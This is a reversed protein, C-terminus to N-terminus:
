ATTVGEGWVCVVVVLLRRPISVTERRQLKSTADLVFTNVASSSCSSATLAGRQGGARRAATDLCVEGGHQRASSCESRRESVNDRSCSSECALLRVRSLVTPSRPRPGCLGRAGWAAGRAPCPTMSLATRHQRALIGTSAAPEHATSTTILDSEAVRAGGRCQECTVTQAGREGAGGRRQARQTLERRVGRPQRLHRVVHRRAPGLIVRVCVVRLRDGGSEATHM